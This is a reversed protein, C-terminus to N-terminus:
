NIGFTEALGFLMFGFDFVSLCVDASVVAVLRSPNITFRKGVNRRLTWDKSEFSKFSRSKLRELVHMM